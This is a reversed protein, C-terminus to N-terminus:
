LKITFIILSIYGITNNTIKIDRIGTVTLIVSQWELWGKKSSVGNPLVEEFKCIPM